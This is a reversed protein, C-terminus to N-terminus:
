PVFGGPVCRVVQEMIRVSRRRGQGGSEALRRAAGLTSHTAERHGVAVRSGVVGALKGAGSRIPPEGQGRAWDHGIVRWFRAFLCWWLWQMRAHDCGALVGRSAEWAPQLVARPTGTSLLARSDAALGHGVQPVNTACWTSILARCWCILLLWCRVTKPMVSVTLVARAAEYDTPRRNL